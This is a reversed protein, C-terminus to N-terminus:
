PKAVGKDSTHAAQWEAVIIRQAKIRRSGALVQFAFGLGEPSPKLVVPDLIGYQRISEVLQRTPEPGDLLDNPPLDSLSVQMMRFSPPQTPLLVPQTAIPPTQDSM